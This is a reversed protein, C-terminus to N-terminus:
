SEESWGSPSWERVRALHDYDGAIQAQQVKIRSLYPTDEQDFWAIRQALRDKVEEILASDVDQQKDDKGSFRVYILAANPIAPLGDFGGAALIAGELPLQPMLHQILWKKDPLQGTKYDIIAAGGDALVDIRDAICALEFPGAPAPFVMRGRRELHAAAVQPRREREWELFVRAANVFRPRWLARQAHPIEARDFCREAIAILRALADGPLSGPYDTMFIELAQHFARGRELPGTQADLPDFPRLRLVHRAYIAYPDRLWTEIETVTLRRPRAAVPPTPAPRALRPGPAVESLLRATALHPSAPIPLNLGQTLQTLRQLWRSPLTPAGDAKLARTLLVAGQGAQMAFDHASLGIAREPQMLGIAERMPRSFWPDAGAGGPWTGENLGGLITLDFRQLRAELPGLIAIARRAGAQPRVPVAMALGRLLAPYADPEIPPLDRASDRLEAVLSAAAEGDRGAWLPCDIPNACALHEATEVHLDVLEALPLAPKAFAAELPRLLTEIQSWWAALNKDPQRAVAKAIGTLGPDPRPGRLARDLARAKARFPAPDEGLTAFPHKLLALLPVPAFGAAAAEALLCLFTGAGSHALPRGASDDISIGWRGLESAVRRALNRDPTVLAGTRGDHELTERLALAITLAEQAPHDAAALALGELGRAIDQPQEALARWADTTPAPRLTERLLLARGEDNEDASWDAVEDRGAGLADLLQKLGFQPHGPDLRGWSEADLGRDLGPLIVAGRPLNAIVRLLNATAPISGTSGAAIVMGRPPEAALRQALRGLALNRRAAPNLRGEAALLKPWEEGILELFRAVERWHDALAEPVLRDLQELDAGQTEVEDMVAALSQALGAAQAFNRGGWRRILSALLLLRRVPSIAPALDLSEFALADEDSDGLAKFEPLLAAGGLELAFADGFNRAARRTPLFITCDSLAFAGGQARAILGRALTRAFDTGITFLRPTGM